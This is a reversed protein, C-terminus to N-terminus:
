YAADTVGDRSAKLRGAVEAMTETFHQFAKEDRLLMLNISPRKETKDDSLSVGDIANIAELLLQRESKADYPSYPKLYAFSIELIGETYVIFPTANREGPWRIFARLSGSKTGTGHTTGDFVTKAWEHLKRCLSEAEEGQKTRLDEYFEAETWARLIQRPTAKQISPLGILTPILLETGKTAFYRLEACLIEFSPMTCQNLYEVTRRLEDNVKDVVIVLRIRGAELNETLNSRFTERDWVDTEGREQRFMEMAEDLSKDAFDPRHCEASNFYKRVIGLEFDEYSFKWLFAAYGLIQGIVTRKVEPNRDLKCEIITVLGDQDVGVVDVYGNSLSTERGVILLPPVSDGLDGFPIAEPNDKVLRQLTAEDPLDSEQAKEWKGDGSKFLIHDPM